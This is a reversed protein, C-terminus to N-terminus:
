FACISRLQCFGTPTHAASTMVSGQWCIKTVDCGRICLLYAFSTVSCLSVSLCAPSMVQPLPQSLQFCSEALCALLEERFLSDATTSSFEEQLKDDEFLAAVDTGQLPRQGRRASEKVFLDVCLATRCICALAHMRDVEMRLNRVMSLLRKFLAVQMQLDLLQLNSVVAKVIAEKGAAYEQRDWLTLFATIPASAWEPKGGPVSALSLMHIGVEYVLAPDLSALYPNLHSVVDSVGLIREAYLFDQQEDARAQSRRAERASAADHGVLGKISDVMGTATARVAYVLPYVTSRLTELPLVQSRAMLLDRKSWVFQCMALVFQSRVALSSETPILKEGALRSLRKTSFEAFLRGVAEFATSSVPDAVDLMSQGIQRWWISVRDLLSASEACLTVIDDRALLCGLGEVAAERLNVSDSQVICNSIEKWNDTLFEGVRWSPIASVFAMSAAKVDPDVSSLDNKIGRCIVEWLDATVRTIRIADFALKKSVANASSAVVESCITPALSSIDKGAAALQLAVLLASTQRGVDNSSVDTRIAAYVIDM